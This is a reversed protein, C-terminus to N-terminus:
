AAIGEVPPHREMGVALINRAANVDRDHLAGCSCKWQRIGLQAIGKPDGISGCESCLQSTFREDAEIYTGAHRRAKYRLFNRFSSWGADLVSKAMRTKALKSPNVNGVVILSNARAIKTSEVHLHHRRSNANKAHITRVRKKNGSRQANGLADEYKRYHRMAPIAEGTSLTELAKLGLDIGVKGNGRPLAEEVECNFCVYWRGRADKVFAGTKIKGGLPRSDWFRYKKRRYLVAGDKVNVARGKFPVWALSYKRSRWKPCIRNLKRSRAFQKCILNITYSNVDLFAGSGDCLKELDIWSPWKRHWKQAHRQVECCHNWIINAAEAQAELSRVYSRDKIRYKYTLIM